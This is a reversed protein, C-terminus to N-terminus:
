KENYPHFPQGQFLSIFKSIKSPKVTESHENTKRTEKSESFEKTDKVECFKSKLVKKLNMCFGDFIQM